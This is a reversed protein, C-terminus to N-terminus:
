MNIWAKRIKPPDTRFSPFMALKRGFDGCICIMNEEAGLYGLFSTGAKRLYANSDWSNDRKLFASRYKYVQALECIRM